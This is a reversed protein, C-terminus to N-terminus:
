LPRMKACGKNRHPGSTPGLSSQPPSGGLRMLPAARRQDLVPGPTQLPMATPPLASEVADSGIPWGRNALSQYNLRQRHSQFYNQERKVIKGKAPHRPQWAFLAQLVKTQKGHRLQHRRPEVWVGAAAESGTVARGIEWLHQSAHYFDLLETAGAWRDHAVNWIWPAGDGLVLVDKARGLGGRLAEWHLRRGMEM